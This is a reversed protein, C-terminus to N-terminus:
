EGRSEEQPEEQFSVMAVFEKESAAAAPGDHDVFNSQIRLIAHMWTNRKALNQRWCHISTM